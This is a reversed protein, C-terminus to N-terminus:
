EKSGVKLNRCWVSSREQERLIYYISCIQKNYSFISRLPATFSPPIPFFTPLPFIPVHESPVSPDLPSRPSTDADPTWYNYLNAWCSTVDQANPWMWLKGATTAKRNDTYNEWRSALKYTCPLEDDQLCQSCHSLWSKHCNPHAVLAHKCVLPRRAVGSPHGALLGCISQCVTSFIDLRARGWKTILFSIVPPTALFHHESCWKLSM